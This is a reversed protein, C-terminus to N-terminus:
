LDSQASSFLANLKAVIAPPTPLPPFHQGGSKQGKTYQAGYSVFLEEGSTIARLSRVNGVNDFYCNRRSDSSPRHNIFRAISSLFPSSCDIYQNVSLRFVYQYEALLVTPQGDSIRYRNRLQHATLPEGDLRTIKCGKAVDEMVFLGLGAGLLSSQAIRLLYASLSLSLFVPDLFVIFCLM